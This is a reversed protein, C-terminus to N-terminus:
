ARHPPETDSVGAILGDSLWQGMDRLELLLPLAAPLFGHDRAAVLVGVTGAVNLGLRKAEARAAADDSLVMDAGIASALRLAQIEGQGLGARTEMASGPFPEEVVQVNSSRVFAELKDRGLTGAPAALVEDRVAVPVDVAEFLEELLSLQDIWSLHILPGADSVARM